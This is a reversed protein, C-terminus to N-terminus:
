RNEVRRRHGSDEKKNEKKVENKRGSSRKEDRRNNEYRSDERHSPRNDRHNDKPRVSPAVPRPDKMSPRHSSGFDRSRHSNYVARDQRIRYHGDYVDHRYRDRYHTQYYSVNNYHSRYHGGGYSVYHRPKGYYYFNVNTYNIYVRFQWKNNQAYIPRYFHDLGMFQRYQTRSLIWRLDDNRIDLFDYYRDLADDYGRVVDDMLYRVNNIFDYNVEYIDDYQEPSLRLEYAMRDTLFRANQRMKSISMAGMAPVTMALMLMMIWLTTLKKM